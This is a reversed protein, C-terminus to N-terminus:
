REQPRGLRPKGSPSQNPIAPDSEQHPCGKCLSV